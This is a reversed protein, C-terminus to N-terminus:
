DDAYINDSRIDKLIESIWDLAISLNNSPIYNKDFYSYQEGFLRCLGSWLGRLDPYELFFTSPINIDVDKEICESIKDTLIKLGNRSKKSFCVFKFYAKEFSEYPRQRSM